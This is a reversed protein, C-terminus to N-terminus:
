VLLHFQFFNKMEYWDMKNLIMSMISLNDHNQYSKFTPWNLKKWLHFQNSSHFCSTYFDRDCNSLQVDKARFTNSRCANQDVSVICSRSPSSETMKTSQQSTMQKGFRRYIRSQQNIPADGIPIIVSPMSSYITFIQLVKNVCHLVLNTLCNVLTLLM